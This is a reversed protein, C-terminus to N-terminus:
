MKLKINICFTDCEVFQSSKRGLWYGKRLFVTLTDKRLTYGVMNDYNQYTELLYVEKTEKNIKRVQIASASLSSNIYVFSISEKIGLSHGAINTPESGPDLQSTLFIYSFLILLLAITIILYKKM